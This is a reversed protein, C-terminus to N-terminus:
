HEVFTQFLFLSLTVRDSFAYVYADSDQEDYDREEWAQDELERPCDECILTDEFFGHIEADVCEVMPELCNVCPQMESMEVILHVLAESLSSGLETELVIQFITSNDM